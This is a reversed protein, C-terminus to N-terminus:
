SLASGSQHSVHPALIPPVGAATEDGPAAGVLAAGEIRAAGMAGGTVQGCQSSSFGASASNQSTHPYSKVVPCAGTAGAAAGWTAPGGTSDATPM